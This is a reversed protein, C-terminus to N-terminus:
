FQLSVSFRNRDGLRHSGFVYDLQMLYGLCSVHFGFGANYGLNENIKNMYDYRNEVAADNLGLRLFLGEVDIPGASLVKRYGLEVGTNVFVPANQRQVVDLSGLLSLGERLAFLNSVGAKTTVPSTDRHGNAWKLEAGRQMVVGLSMSSFKYLIGIDMDFGYATANPIKSFQQSIYKLTAGAYLADDDEFVPFGYSLFYANESDNFTDRVIRGSNDLYTYPVGGIGSFIAGLGVTSSENNILPLGLAVPVTIGVFQHKPFVDKLTEWKTSAMSQEMATVSIRKLIAIGAPNWYIASTDDSVSVFAGGMGMARAGVGTNMFAAPGTGACLYSASFACVFVMTAVAKGLGSRM